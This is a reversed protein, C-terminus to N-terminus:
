RVVADYAKYCGLSFDKITTVYHTTLIARCTHPMCLQDREPTYIRTYISRLLALYHPVSYSQTILFKM